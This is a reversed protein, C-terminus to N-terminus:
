CFGTIEGPIVGAGEVARRGSIRPGARRLRLRVGQVERFEVVAAEFGIM